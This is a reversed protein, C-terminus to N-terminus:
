TARQSLILFRSILFHMLGRQWFGRASVDLRAEDSSNATNNLAEGTLTQLHPKAQVDHCVDKLVSAFQDRVDDHVFGSKMCSLANNVDFRRAAHVHPHFTNRHGATGLASRM